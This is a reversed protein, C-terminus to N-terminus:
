GHRSGSAARKRQPGTSRPGGQERVERLSRRHQRRKGVPDGSGGNGAIRIALGAALLLAPGDAKVPAPADDPFLAAIRVPLGLLRQTTDPLGTAAAATGCLVAETVRGHRSSSHFVQLIRALQRAAADAFSASSSEATGDGGPFFREESHVIRTKAFVYLCMAKACVDIIAVPGQAARTMGSLLCAREMAHHEVDIAAVRLGARELAQQRAIVQEGRCITLLVSDAASQPYRLRRHDVFVEDLPYPIHRDAEAIIQTEIEEDSMEADMSLVRQMVAASPVAAVAERAPHPLSGVAEAICRAVADVDSISRESIAGEPLPRIAYEPQEGPGAPLRLVKVADAGIDVGLLRPMLALRNMRPLLSTLKDFM